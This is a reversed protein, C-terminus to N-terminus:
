RKYNDRKWRLDEWRNCNVTDEKCTSPILYLWKAFETQNNPVATNPVTYFQRQSNEREWLEDVSRFLKHNYNVVINNQIDEDNANCAAPVDGIGFDTINNNMFPNDTSPKRCTNKNYEDIEDVTYLPDYQRKSFKPILPKPGVIYKGESDYLGGEIRYNAQNEYLSKNATDFGDYDATKIYDNDTQINISNVSPEDPAYLKDEASRDAVIDEKRKNIIKDFDKNQRYKDLRYFSYFLVILGIGILPLYIYETGHYFLILIITFYIFFRTMANMQEVTTMGYKPVFETYNLWLQKPDYLWFKNITKIGNLSVKKKYDCSSMHAIYNACM